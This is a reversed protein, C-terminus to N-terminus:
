KRCLAIAKLSNQQDIDLKTQAQTQDFCIKITLKNVLSLVLVWDWCWVTAWYKRAIKHDEGKCANACTQLTKFTSFYWSNDKFANAWWQYCCHNARRSVKDHSWNNVGRPWHYIMWYGSDIVTILIRLYKEDDYIFKLGINHTECNQPLEPHLSASEAM